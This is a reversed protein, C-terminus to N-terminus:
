PSNFFQARIAAPMQDKGFDLISAGKVAELFRTEFEAATEMSAISVHPTIGAKEIIVQGNYIDRASSLRIGTNTNPLPIWTPNGSGGMSPRGYIKFKGPSAQALFLFNESSSFEDGNTLVKWQLDKLEDDQMAFCDESSMGARELLSLQRSRPEVDQGHIAAFSADIQRFQLNDFAGLDRTMITQGAIEFSNPWTRISLSQKDIAALSSRNGFTCMFNLVALPDGGGNGRLDFYVTSQQAKNERIWGALKQTWLGFTEVSPWTGLWVIIKGAKDLCAGGLYGSGDLVRDCGYGRNVGLTELVAQSEPASFIKQPVNYALELTLKSRSVLDDAEVKVPANGRESVVSRAFIYNPLSQTWNGKTHSYLHEADMEAKYDLIPRDDVTRIALPLAQQESTYLFGYFGEQVSTSITTLRSGILSSCRSDGQCKVVVPMKIADLGNGFQVATHLDKLDAVAKQTMAVFQSYDKPCDASDKNEPIENHVYSILDQMLRYDACVQASSYKSNLFAMRDQQLVDTTFSQTKYGPAKGCAIMGWLSLAFLKSRSLM